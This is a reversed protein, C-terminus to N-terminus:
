DNNYKCRESDDCEKNGDQGREIERQETEATEILYTYSKALVVPNKMLAQYTWQTSLVTFYLKEPGNRFKMKHVNKAFGIVHDYYFLM